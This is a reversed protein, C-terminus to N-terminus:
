HHKLKGGSKLFKLNQNRQNGWSTQILKLIGVQFLVELSVGHFKDEPDEVERVGVKGAYDLEIATGTNEPQAINIQSEARRNVEEM